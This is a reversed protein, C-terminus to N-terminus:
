TSQATRLYLQVHLLCDIRPSIIIIVKNKIVLLRRSISAIWKHIFYFIALLASQSKWSRFWSYGVGKSLIDITQVLVVGEGWCRQRWELRHLYLRMFLYMYKYKLPVNVQTQSACANTNSLYMWKYKLPVDVQIQSTCTSTNSLCMWKYKLPVYMQIQSACESTNSLCMCKYKLPVHEEIQSTCDSTNSLYM